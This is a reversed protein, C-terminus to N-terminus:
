TTYALPRVADGKGLKLGSIDYSALDQEHDTISMAGQRDLNLLQFIM